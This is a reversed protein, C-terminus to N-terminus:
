FYASRMSVFITVSDLDVHGLKEVEGRKVYNRSLKQRRITVASIRSPGIGTIHYSLTQYRLNIDVNLV